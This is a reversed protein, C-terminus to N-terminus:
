VTGGGFLCQLVIEVSHEGDGVWISGEQITVQLDMSRKALAGLAESQEAPVQWVTLNKARTMKNALGSWWVGSASSFCYVVVREARSSVRLLLKEDPQGVEIWDVLLGTLDKRWLPPEDADWLDKGFELYGRDNTTPANLAFALVRVMMREDTESPHRAITLNHDSYENRDLDSVQVAVKYITAKLAM